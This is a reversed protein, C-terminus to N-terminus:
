GVDFISFSVCILSTLSLFYNRLLVHILLNVPNGLGLQVTLKLVSLQHLRLVLFCSLFVILCACMAVQLLFQSQIASSLPFLQVFILTIYLCTHFFSLQCPHLLKMHFQRVSHLPAPFSQEHNGMM